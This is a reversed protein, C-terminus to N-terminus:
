ALSPEAHEPQIVNFSGAGVGSAAARAVLEGPPTLPMNM